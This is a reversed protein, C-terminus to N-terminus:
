VDNKRDKNLLSKLTIDGGWTVFVAGVSDAVTLFDVRGSRMPGVQAPTECQFVGMVRTGGHMSRHDMEVVFDAKNINSFYPRTEIDGSYMVAFPRKNYNDCALGTIPSANEPKEYPM